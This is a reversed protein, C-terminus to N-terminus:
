RSIIETVTARLEVKELEARLSSCMSRLYAPRAVENRLSDENNLGLAWAKSSLYKRHCIIIPLCLFVQTDAVAAPHKKWQM